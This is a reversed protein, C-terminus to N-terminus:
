GPHGPSGPWTAPWVHGPRGPRGAMMVVVAALRDKLQCQSEIMIPLQRDGTMEDLVVACHVVEDEAGGVRRGQRDADRHVWCGYSHGHPVACSAASLRGCGDQRSVCM